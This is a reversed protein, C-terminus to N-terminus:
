SSFTQSSSWSFVVLIEDGPFRRKLIRAERIFIYVFSRVVTTTTNRRRKQKNTPDVVLGYYIKLMNQRKPRKNSVTVLLPHLKKTLKVGYAYYTISSYPM